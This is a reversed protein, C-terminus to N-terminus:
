DNRSEALLNAQVAKRFAETQRSYDTRVGQEAASPAPNITPEPNMANPQQDAGPVVSHGFPAAGQYPSPGGAAAADYGDMLPKTGPGNEPTKGNPDPFTNPAATDLDTTTGATKRGQSHLDNSSPGLSSLEDPEENDSTVGPATGTGGLMDAQTKIARTVIRSYEMRATLQPYKAAQKRHAAVWAVRHPNERIGAYIGLEFDANGPLVLPKGEAWKSAFKLARDFDKSGHHSPQLVSPIDKKGSDEPAKEPSAHTKDTEPNNEGPTEHPTDSNGFMDAIHRFAEAWDADIKDGNDQVIKWMAAHELHASPDVEGGTTDQDPATEQGGLPFMVEGPYPTEKPQNNADVTQGIQDLGSASSKELEKKRKNILAKAAEPHKSDGVLHEANKLDTKNEIPFSGDPLADGKKADSKREKESIDRAEHSFDFSPFSEFPEHGYSGNVPCHPHGFGGHRDSVDQRWDMGDSYVPKDCHKCTATRVAEKSFDLRGRYDDLSAVHNIALTPTFYSLRQGNGGEVSDGGVPGPGSDHESPRTEGEIGFPGTSEIERILPANASGQQEDVGANGEALEPAFNDFVETPNETTKAQNNADITQDIMDLGSGAERSHLYAVYQLFSEQAQEANPAYRGALKRARGRAQEVFEEVDARVGNSTRDYWLSAETMMERRAQEVPVTDVDAIWDTAATHFSHVSRPTLTERVITETLDVQRNAMSALRRGARLADLEGILDKQEAFTAAKQIAQVLRAEDAASMGVGNESSQKRQQKRRQRLQDSSPNRTLKREGRMNEQLPIDEDEEPDWTVKAAKYDESVFFM